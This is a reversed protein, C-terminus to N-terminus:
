HSSASFGIKAPGCSANFSGSYKQTFTITGTAAKAKTFRGSVSITTVALTGASRSSSKAGSVSFRGSAAVKVKGVRLISNGTYPNVGPRFGGAGQCGFSGFSFGTLSAGDHAVTFKVPAFFGVVPQSATHGSFRAGRKPKAALAAAALTLAVALVSLTVGLATRRVAAARM